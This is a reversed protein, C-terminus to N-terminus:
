KGSLKDVLALIEEYIENGYQKLIKKDSLSEWDKVGDKELSSLLKKYSIDSEEVTDGTVKVTIGKYTAYLTGDSLKIGEMARYGPTTGGPNSDGGQEPKGSELHHRAMDRVVAYISYKSNGM